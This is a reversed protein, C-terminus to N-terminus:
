NILNIGTASYPRTTSRSYHIKWPKGGKRVLLGAADLEDPIKNPRVQPNRVLFRLAAPASLFLRRLDAHAVAKMWSELQPLEASPLQDLNVDETHGRDILRWTTLLVAYRALTACSRVLAHYTQETEPLGQAATESPANALRSELQQWAKSDNQTEIEGAPAHALWTEEDQQLVRHITNRAVGDGLALVVKLLEQLGAKAAPLRLRYGFWDHQRLSDELFLQPGAFARLTLGYANEDLGEKLSFKKQPPRWAEWSFVLDPFSAVSGTQSAALNLFEPSRQPNFIFRIEAHHATGSPNLPVLVFEAAEIGDLPVHASQLVTTREVPNGGYNVNRLIVHSDHDRLKSEQWAVLVPAFAAMYGGPLLDRDTRLRMIDRNDEAWKLLQKLTLTRYNKM